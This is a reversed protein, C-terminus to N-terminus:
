SHPIWQCSWRGHLTNNAKICTTNIKVYINTKPRLTSREVLLYLNCRSGALYNPSSTHRTDAVNGHTQTPMYASSNSKVNHRLLTDWSLHACCTSLPMGRVTLLNTLMLHPGIPALQPICHYKHRLVNCIIYGTWGHLTVHKATPWKGWIREPFIVALVTVPLSWLLLRLYM